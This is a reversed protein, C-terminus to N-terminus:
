LLFTTGNDHIIGLRDLIAKIRLGTATPAALIERELVERYKAYFPFQEDFADLPLNARIKEILQPIFHNFCQLNPYYDPSPDKFFRQFFPDFPNNRFHVNFKISAPIFGEPIQHIQNHDLNLETLRKFDQLNAPIESIMNGELDIVGLHKTTSIWHPIIQIHNRKMGLFQLSDLDHLLPPIEMFANDDLDLYLLNNLRCFTSPLTQLHNHSLDLLVMNPLDCIWAPFQTLNCNKIHLCAITSKCQLYSGLQDFDWTDLDTIELTDLRHLYYLEPPCEIGALNHAFYLASIHGEYANYASTCPNVKELYDPLRPWIFKDGFRRLLPAEDDMIYPNDLSRTCTPCAFTALDYTQHCVYCTTQTQLLASPPIPLRSLNFSFQLPSEISDASEIPNASIDPSKFPPSSKKVM